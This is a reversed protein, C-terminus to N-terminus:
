VVSTETLMFGSVTNFGDTDNRTQESLYSSMNHQYVFTSLLQTREPNPSAPLAGPPPTFRLTEGIVSEGCTFGAAARMEGSMNIFYDESTVDRLHLAMVKHHRNLQQRDGNM